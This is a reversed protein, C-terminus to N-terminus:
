KGDGKKETPAEVGPWASFRMERDARKFDEVSPYILPDNIDMTAWWDFVVSQHSALIVTVATHNGTIMGAETFYGGPRDALVVKKVFPIHANEIAKVVTDAIGTCVMKGKEPTPDKGTLIDPGMVAADRAWGAAPAPLVSAKSTIRKVCEPDNKVANVIWRAEGYNMVEHAARPQWPGPFDKVPREPPRSPQADKRAIYGVGANSVQIPGRGAAEPSAPSADRSQQVVHALEHALLTRGEETRPGYHGAGFVIDSGMTFARANLDRAATASNEDAHVRIGGLDHGFRPELYARAEPDLPHGPGLSGVLGGPAATIGKLGTDVKLQALGGDKGGDRGAPRIGGESARSAPMRMVTDAVRDAEQELTDGPQSVTLKAQAGVCRPCGGGCPCSLDPQMLNDNVVPRVSSKIAAAASCNSNRTKRIDQAKELMAAKM